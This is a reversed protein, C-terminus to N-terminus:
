WLKWNKFNNYVYSLIVSLIIGIGGYIHNGDVMIGSLFVILSILLLLRFFINM